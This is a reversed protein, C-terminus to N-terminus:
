GPNGCPSHHEFYLSSAEWQQHFFTNKFRNQNSDIWATGQADLSYWFKRYAQKTNKECKSFSFGSSVQEVLHHVFRHTLADGENDNDDEAQMGEKVPLGSSVSKMRDDRNVNYLSDMRACTTTLEQLITDWEAM